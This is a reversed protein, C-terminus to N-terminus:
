WIMEAVCVDRKFKERAFTALSADFNNLIGGSADVISIKALHAINPYIRMLDTTCLDHLEAAFESGTPGGGV